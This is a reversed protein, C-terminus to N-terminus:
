KNKKHLIKMLEKSMFYPKEASGDNRECDELFCLFLTDVAMSYVGFFVTAIFFTGVGIIVVPVISYNLSPINVYDKYELEHTFVHFSLACIGATIALKGLLLLFDTVKDLVFVRVVNRMLLNFADRASRCFNKGYIACM